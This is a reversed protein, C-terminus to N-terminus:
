KKFLKLGIRTVSKICRSQDVRLESDLDIRFYDLSNFLLILEQDEKTVTPLSFESTAIELKRELSYM